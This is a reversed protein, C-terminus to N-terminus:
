RLERLVRASKLEKDLNVRILRGHATELERAAEPDLSLDGVAEPAASAASRLFRLADLSITTGGGHACRPCVYHHERPPM